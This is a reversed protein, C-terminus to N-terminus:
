SSGATGETGPATRPEGLSAEPTRDGAGATAPQVEESFDVDKTEPGWVAGAVLLLAGVVVLVLVTYEFPMFTALGAQYYAYLSPLVVALSYGIGFASARIGTQFRENIYATTIGWPSVILLTFITTLLIVLLLSEPPASLLLYYLFTGVVAMLAGMAILFPRRGTRQSIVGGAIYGGALVVNSVVLTITVNTKSLGVPNGLLGPLIAAVTQLTLWFGTMLVFVQLFSLLNERETFLQRLPAESGGTEEFIESEEVSRAYYIVLAFALLAGIVFPIRWGWQVYPSNIDGAPILLLLVTTIASITAFALPYGTMILASYFGRKEKPSYEMALPNASTYEGGLFIGDVLRLVILLIVAAIGWQQYGPLLAMLLTVVGFGSVSIITTRRRGIADAFHGFIFSGIPRGLLTAAFITGGIVTQTVADLEPSVFYILAPALVVIPLYIDFMDVFFGLWAGRIASKAQPTLTGQQGSATTAM